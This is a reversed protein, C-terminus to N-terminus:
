LLLHSSLLLATQLHFPAINIFAYAVKGAECDLFVLSVSERRFRGAFVETEAWHMPMGIDGGEQVERM